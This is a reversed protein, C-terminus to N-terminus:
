RPRGGAGEKAMLRGGSGCFGPPASARWAGPMKRAARLFGRSPERFIPPKGRTTARQIARGDQRRGRNAGRPEVHLRVLRGLAVRQNAAPWPYVVVWLYLLRPLFFPRQWPGGGLIRRKQESRQRM